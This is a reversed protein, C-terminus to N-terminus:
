RWPLELRDLLPRLHGIACVPQEGLRWHAIGFPELAAELVGTHSGITVQPWPRNLDDMVDNQLQDAAHACAAEVGYSLGASFRHGGAKVIVYKTLIPVSRGDSRVESFTDDTDVSIEPLPLDARLRVEIFTMAHRLWTSTWTDSTEEEYHM